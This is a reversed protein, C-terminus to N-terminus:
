YCCKIEEVVKVFFVGFDKFLYVYNGLESLFKLIFFM